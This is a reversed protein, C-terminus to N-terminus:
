NTTIQLNDAMFNCWPGSTSQADRCGPNFFRFGTNDPDPWNANGVKTTVRDPHNCSRGGEWSLTEVQKITAWGLYEQWWVGHPGTWSPDGHCGESQSISKTKAVNVGVFASLSNELLPVSVRIGASTTVTTSRADGVLVETDKYVTRRDHCWGTWWKGAALTTYTVKNRAICHDGDPLIRDEGLADALTVNDSSVEQHLTLIITHSHSLLLFSRVTWTANDINDVDDPSVAAIFYASVEEGPQDHTTTYAPDSSGSSGDDGQALPLAYAASFLAPALLSSFVAAARM